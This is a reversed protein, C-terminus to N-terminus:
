KWVDSQITRQLKKEMPGYQDIAGTFDRAEAGHDISLVGQPVQTLPGVGSRRQRLSEVLSDPDNGLPSVVGVGTIVVRRDSANDM